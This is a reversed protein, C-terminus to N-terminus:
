EFPQGFYTLVWLALLYVSLLSQIGAVTRVWGTARLV